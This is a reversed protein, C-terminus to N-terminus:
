PPLMLVVLLEDLAELTFRELEIRIVPTHSVFNDLALLNSTTEMHVIALYRM